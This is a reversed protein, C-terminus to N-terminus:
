EQMDALAAPSSVALAMLDYIGGAELKAAVAPGVGPLDTLEPEKEEIKSDKKVKKVEKEIEESELEEEPSKKTAM